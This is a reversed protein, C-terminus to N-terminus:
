GSSIVLCRKGEPRPMVLWSSPLDPPIDTMWEPVMLQHAFYARLAAGSMSSSDIGDLGYLQQQEQQQQSPSGGAEGAAAAAAPHHEQQQQQQQQPTPDQHM